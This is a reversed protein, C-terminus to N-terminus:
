SKEWFTQLELAKAHSISFSVTDQEGNEFVRSINLEFKKGRRTIQMAVDRWDTGFIREDSTKNDSM